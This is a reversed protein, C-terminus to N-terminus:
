SELELPHGSHAQVPRSQSGAPALPCRVWLHVRVPLLYGPPFLLSSNTHLGLFFLFFVGGLKKAWFSVQALMTIIPKSLGVIDKGPRRWRIRPPPPIRSRPMHPMPSLAARSPFSESPCPYVGTLLHPDRSISSDHFIYSLREVTPKISQSNLELHHYFFFLLPFRKQGVFISSLKMCQDGMCGHQGIMDDGCAQMGVVGQDAPFPTPYSPFLITPLRINARM